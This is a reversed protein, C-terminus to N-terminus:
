SARKSDWSHKTKKYLWEVKSFGWQLAVGQIVIGLVSTITLLWISLSHHIVFIEHGFFLMHGIIVYLADIYSQVTEEVNLIVIGEMFFLALLFLVILTLSQFNMKNVYPLIYYKAITKIRFFYFIRVIRAVQFFQDFPIIAIVLFPNKKIFIWKEESLLFRILFDVFFVFWVVWNITSNYTNQTWLTIITLMVLLVMISEYMAKLFKQM